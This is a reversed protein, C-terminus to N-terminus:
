PNRSTFILFLIDRLLAVKGRSSAEVLKFNSFCQILRDTESFHSHPLVMAMNSLLFYSFYKKSPQGLGLHGARGLVIVARLFFRGVLSGASTVPGSGLGHCGSLTWFVGFWSARLVIWLPGQVLLVLMLQANMLFASDKPCELGVSEGPILSAKWCLGICELTQPCGVSIEQWFSKLSTSIHAEHQCRAAVVSNQPVGEIPRWSLM